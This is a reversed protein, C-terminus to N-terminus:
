LPLLIVISPYLLSVSKTRRRKKKKKRNSCFEIYIWIFLSNDFSKSKMKIIMWKLLIVYRHSPNSDRRGGGGPRYSMRLILIWGGEQRKEREVETKSKDFLTYLLSSLRGSNVLNTDQISISPSFLVYRLVNGRLRKGVGGERDRVSKSPKIREFSQLCVLLGDIMLYFMHM